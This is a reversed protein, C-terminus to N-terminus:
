SGVLYTNEDIYAILMQFNSRFGERTIRNVKDEESEREGKEGGSLFYEV